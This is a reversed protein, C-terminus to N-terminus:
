SQHRRRVVYLVLMIVVVGLIAGIGVWGPSSTAPSSPTSSNSGPELPADDEANPIGDGDEDTSGLGGNIYDTANQEPGHDRATQHSGFSFDPSTRFNYTINDWDDYSGLDDRASGNGNLDVSVGNTLSRDGNWDVDGDDGLAPAVRGGGNSSTDVNPGYRIRWDAPLDGLADQEPLNSEQLTVHDDRSFDLPRNTRVETERSAGPIHVANGSSNWQYNYNM